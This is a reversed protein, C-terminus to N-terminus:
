QTCFSHLLWACSQTKLAAPAGPPAPGGGVAPRGEYGVLRGEYGVESVPTGVVIAWTGVGTYLGTGGTM